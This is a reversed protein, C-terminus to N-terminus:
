DRVIKIVIPQTTPKGDVAAKIHFQRTQPSVWPAATIFVERSSQGTPILL